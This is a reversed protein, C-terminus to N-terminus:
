AEETPSRLRVGFHRFHRVNATVVTLDNVAATAAIAADEFGPDAGAAIARDLLRGTELAASSTLPLTRSDYLELIGNLWHALAAARRTSGKRQLQSIGSQIEALTITSLFLEDDYERLFTRFRAVTSPVAIRPAARPAIISIASTDLLYGSMLAFGSFTSTPKAFLAHHV